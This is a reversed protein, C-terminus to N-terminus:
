VNTKLNTRLKIRYYRYNRKMNNNYIINEKILRKWQKFTMYKWITEIEIDDTEYKIHIKSIITNKLNLKLIKINTEVKNIM